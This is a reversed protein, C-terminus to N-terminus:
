EGKRQLALSDRNPQQAKIILDMDEGKQDLPAKNDSFAQVFAAMALYAGDMALSGDDKSATRAVYDALVAAEYNKRLWFNTYAYFLRANM